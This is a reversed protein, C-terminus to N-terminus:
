KWTVPKNFYDSDGIYAAATIGGPVLFTLCTQFSKGSTMPKPASADNCAPFDGIFTVSDQPHGTNDLGQVQNSPDIDGATVDGSGVNTIKVRVYYPTGAKQSADLSIGKFDALSGKVVSQVTIALRRATSNSSYDPDYAVTATKGVGLQTGPAAVGGAAPAAPAAPAAAASSSSRSSSGGCASLGAGMLAALLLARMAIATVIFGKGPEPWV